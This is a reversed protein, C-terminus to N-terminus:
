QWYNIPRLHFCSLMFFICMISININTKNTTNSCATMIWMVLKTTVEDSVTIRHGPHELNPEGRGHTTTAHCDLLIDCHTGAAPKYNGATQPRIRFLEPTMGFNWQLGMMDYLKWCSFVEFRTAHHMTCPVDDYRM